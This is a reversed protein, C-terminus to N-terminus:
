VFGDSENSVYMHAYVCACVCCYVSACMLLVAFRLYKEPCMKQYSTSFKYAIM